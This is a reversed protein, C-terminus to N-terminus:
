SLFVSYPSEFNTGFEFGQKPRRAGVGIGTADSIQQYKANECFLELTSNRRKGYVDGSGSYLAERLM